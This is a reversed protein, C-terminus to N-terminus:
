NSCYQSWKNFACPNHFQTYKHSGNTNQHSLFKRHINWVKIRTKRTRNKAKGTFNWKIFPKSVQKEWQINPDLHKRVGHVEPLKIGASKAQSQTQVLYRESNGTNYYKKQLISYMNFLYTNEQTSWQWWTKQRSWFDSLIM